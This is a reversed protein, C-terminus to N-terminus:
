NVPNPSSYEDQPHNRARFPTYMYLRSSLLHLLPKHIKSSTEVDLDFHLRQSEIKKRKKSITQQKQKSTITSFTRYHIHSMGIQYMMGYVYLKGVVYTTRVDRCVGLWSLQCRVKSEQLRSSIPLITLWALQRTFSQSVNIWKEKYTDFQLILHNQEHYSPFVDCKYM